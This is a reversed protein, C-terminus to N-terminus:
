KKQKDLLKGYLSIEQSSRSVRYKRSVNKSRSVKCIKDREEREHFNQVWEKKELSLKREELFAM